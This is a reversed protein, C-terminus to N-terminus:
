DRNVALKLAPALNGVPRVMVASLGLWQAMLQIEAALEVDTNGPAEPELHASQVLLVGAARDAKLDVRAAIRDGLLFPLVYYGYRRKHAPTYIEIRYEIGFIEQLRRRDFVLSDFPSLLARARTHRPTRAEAHLFVPGKWGAVETEELRGESTLIRAATLTERVPLRFYDALSNATAAGLSRAATETLRLLAETRDPQDLARAGLPHISGTPAYLREFQASRGASTIIGQEFLDELVRKVASWNWGWSKAATGSEHGLLTEVQRASLPHKQELLDLVAASVKERLEQPMDRARMWTRRQWVRLDAFLEPRIYSAEHAWYEVMQRPHRSSMRELLTRDYPGLRSFHPLYHSRALVNVSDIQLLALANFVRGVQGATPRIPRTAALQQAGLVTRRAQDPTLAPSM